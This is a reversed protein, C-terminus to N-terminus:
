RRRRANFTIAPVANHKRTTSGSRSKSTPDLHREKRDPEDGTDGDGQEFFCQFEIPQREYINPVLITVKVEGGANRLM